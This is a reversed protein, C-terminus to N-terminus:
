VIRVTINSKLMTERLKLVYEWREVLQTFGTAYFDKNANHLFKRVHQQGDEEDNEFKIGRRLEKLPGFLHFDSLVLDPSYQLHLLLEWSM